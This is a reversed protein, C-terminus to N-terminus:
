NMLGHMRLTLDHLKRCYFSLFNCVSTLLEYPSCSQLLKHFLNSHSLLSFRKRVQRMIEKILQQERLQDIKRYNSYEDKRRLIGTVPDFYHPLSHKAFVYKNKM